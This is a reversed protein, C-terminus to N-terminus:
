LKLLERNQDRNGIIEMRRTWKEHMVPLIIGGCVAGHYHTRNMQFGIHNDCGDSGHFFVEYACYNKREWEDKPPFRLLDGEYIKKFNKDKLHTWFMWGPDSPIGTDVKEGGQPDGVREIYNGDTPSMIFRFGNDVDSYIMGHKESYARVKIDWM